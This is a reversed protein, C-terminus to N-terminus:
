DKHEKWWYVKKKKNLICFKQWWNMRNVIWNRPHSKTDLPKGLFTETSLTKRIAMGILTLSTNWHSNSFSFIHRSSSFSPILLSIMARSIANACRRSSSSSTLFSSSNSLVNLIEICLDSPIVNRSGIETDKLWLIPGNFLIVMDPPSGNWKSDCAELCILM